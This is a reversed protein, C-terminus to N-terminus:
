TDMFRQKFNLLTVALRFHLRTILHFKEIRILEIQPKWCTGLLRVDEEYRVITKEVESFIEEAAATLRERIFERLHQVSSM